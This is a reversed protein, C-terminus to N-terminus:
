MIWIIIKKIERNNVEKKYLNDNFLTYYIEKTETFVDINNKKEIDLNIFENILEEIKKSRYKQKQINWIEM